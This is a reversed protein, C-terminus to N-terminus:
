LGVLTGEAEALGQPTGIDVFSGVFALGGVLGRAALGPLVDHELSAPPAPIEDIVSRCAWYYGANIWGPGTSDAKEAFRSVKPGVCDVAGFRATDPVWCLALRILWPEPTAAEVFARLDFDFYTDGNVLLFREALAPAAAALAGGTGLPRDEVVHTLRVGLAVGDGLAERIQGARYGELLVVDDFGHRALQRVLHEVFPRGDVPLLPKPVRDTLAGLRRGRGGALIVAQRGM